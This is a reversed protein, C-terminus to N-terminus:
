VVKNISVPLHLCIYLIASNEFLVISHDGLVILSNKCGMDHIVSFLCIIYLVSKNQLHTPRLNLEREFIFIVRLKITGEAKRIKNCEFHSCTKVTRIIVM